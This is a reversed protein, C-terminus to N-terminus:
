RPQVASGLRSQPVYAPVIGAAAWPAVIANAMLHLVAVFAIVAILLVRARTAKGATMMALWDRWVLNLEHRAFWALSTPQANM